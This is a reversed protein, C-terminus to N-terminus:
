KKEPSSDSDLFSFKELFPTKKETADPRLYFTFMFNRLGLLHCIFAFSSPASLLRHIILRSFQALSSSKGDPRFMWQSEVLINTLSKDRPHFMSARRFVRPQRERGETSWIATNIKAILLSVLFLFKLHIEATRPTSVLVPFMSLRWSRIVKKSTAKM